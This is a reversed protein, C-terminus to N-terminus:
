CCLWVCWCVDVIVCVCCLVVDVVSVCDAVDLVVIDFNLLLVCILLLMLLMLLMVVVVCCLMLLCVFEVAVVEVFLVVVGLVSCEDSRCLVFCFLLPLFLLLLLLM